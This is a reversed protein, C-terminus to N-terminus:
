ALASRCRVRVEALLVRGSDTLGGDREVRVVYCDEVAGGLTRNAAVAQTVEDALAMLRDRVTAYDDGPRAVLVVVRLEFVEDMSPSPGMTVDPDWTADAGESVWVHDAQVGSGPDGLRLAVGSLGAQGQLAALLGDEAADLRSVLAM